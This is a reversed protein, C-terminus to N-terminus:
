RVLGVVRLAAEVCEWRHHFFGSVYGKTTPRLQEPLIFHYAAGVRKDQEIKIGLMTAQGFQLKRRKNIESIRM